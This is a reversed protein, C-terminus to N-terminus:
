YGGKTCQVIKIEEHPKKQYHMGRFTFKKKNFSRNIQKWVFNLKKKIYIKAFNSKLIDEAIM